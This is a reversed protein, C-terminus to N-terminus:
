AQFPTSPKILGCGSSAVLDFADHDAQMTATNANVAVGAFFTRNGGNEDVAYGCSCHAAAMASM